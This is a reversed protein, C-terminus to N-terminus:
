RYCPSLPSRHRRRLAWLWAGLLLAPGSPEPVPAAVPAGPGPAPDSAYVWGDWSGDALPRGALGTTSVFWSGPNEPAYPNGNPPLVHAADLYLPPTGAIV